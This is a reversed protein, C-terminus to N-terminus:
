SWQVKMTGLDLGINMKHMPVSHWRCVISKGTLDSEPRPYGTVKGLKVDHFTGGECGAVPHEFRVNFSEAFIPLIYALVM